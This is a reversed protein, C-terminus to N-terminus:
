TDKRGACIFDNSTCAALFRPIDYQLKEELCVATLAAEGHVIVQIVVQFSKFSSMIGHRPFSFRVHVKDTYIRYASENSRVAYCRVEVLQEICFPKRVDLEVSEPVGTDAEEGIIRRKRHLLYLVICAVSVEERCKIHVAMGIIRCLLSFHVIDCAPRRSLFDNM